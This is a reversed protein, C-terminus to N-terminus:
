RDSAFALRKGDPAWAVDSNSSGDAQGKIEVPEETGAYRILSLRKAGRPAIQWLAVQRGDPSWAPMWGIEGRYRIRPSEQKGGASTFGLVSEKIEPDDNKLQAIYALLKGDPSWSGGVVKSYKEFLVRRREGNEIVYLSWPGEHKSAFALQRGDPSWRPRVGESLWRRDSGDANMVWVGPKADDPTKEHRFFALSKGDPTWSPGNGPGLDTLTKKPDKVSARYVHSNPGGGADPSADFAIQEGDTSWSPSGHWVMGDVKVFPRVDSGDANMVFLNARTRIEQAHATAVQAQWAAGIALLLAVGRKHRLIWVATQLSISNPM